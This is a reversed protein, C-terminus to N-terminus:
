KVKKAVEIASALLPAQSSKIFNMKKLSIEAAALDAPIRNKYKQYLSEIREAPYNELIFQIATAYVLSSETSTAIFQTRLDNLIKAMGTPSKMFSNRWVLVESKRSYTIASLKLNETSKVADNTWSKITKQSPNTEVQVALGCPSALQIKALQGHTDDTLLRVPGMGVRKTQTQAGLLIEPSRSDDTSAAMYIRSGFPAGSCTAATKLIFEAEYREGEFAPESNEIM